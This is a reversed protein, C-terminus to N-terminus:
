PRLWEPVPVWQVARRQEAVLSARADDVTSPDAGAWLLLRLIKHESANCLQLSRSRSMLSELLVQFIGRGAADKANPDAGHRLLWKVSDWHSHVAACALATFKASHQLQGSVEDIPLPQGQSLAYQHLVEMAGVNNAKAARMLPTMGSEDHLRPHVDPLMQLLLKLCWIYNDIRTGERKFISRYTIRGASCLAALPTCGFKNPTSATQRAVPHALLLEFCEKAGNIAAAM